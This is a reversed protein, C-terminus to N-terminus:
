ICLFHKLHVFLTESSKKADSVSKKCRFCVKLTKFCVKLLITYYLTALIARLIWNVKIFLVKVKPRYLDPLFFDWFLGLFIPVKRFLVKVKLDTNDSRKDLINSNINFKQAVDFYSTTPYKLLHITALESIMM